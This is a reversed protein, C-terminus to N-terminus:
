ILLLCVDTFSKKTSLNKFFLRKSPENLILFVHPHVYQEHLM